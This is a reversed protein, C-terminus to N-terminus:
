DFPHLVVGKDTPYVAEIAGDEDFTLRDICVQRLLTDKSFPRKLRHYIIFDDGGQQFVAHHGPGLIEREHDSKLIPSNKGEKDFPGWPSDAVAYRVKYSDDICKGDSYMLYYRGNRKIMFPAEIYNPPTIEKPETAFTFMDPKLEVMFCRGNAWNQGSGWYLYVKGDDDIFPEADISNYALPILPRQDEFVNKWPGTPHDAVGCYIESGVSVYMYFRGNKAHIMGPAWVGAWSSQSTSCVKKTPWNLSHDQWTIFDTTSKCALTEGGWPDRTVYMYFSGDHIIISPDALFEEMIPNSVQVGNSPKEVAPQIDSLAKDAPMEFKSFVGKAVLEKGKEAASATFFVSVFFVVIFVKNMKILYNM